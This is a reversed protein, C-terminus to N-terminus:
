QKEGKQRAEHIARAEDGVLDPEARQGIKFITTGLRNETKIQGGSELTMLISDMNQASGVDRWLAALLDVRTVPRLQKQQNEIFRLVKDMVTANDADGVSRFVRALEKACKDVMKTAQTMDVEDIVLEDTRALSLCMSAKLVHIPRTTEYSATAEDVFEKIDAKLYYEEFQKRAADAFRFEGHLQARRRLGDVLAERRSDTGNRAQPWPIKRARESEYVFNCRRIFGGGISTPPFLLAVQSPTCGGLLTPCPKYIKCLGRTRTGYEFPGDKAEWLEKLPASTESSLILDELEPSSIFCSADRSMTLTTGKMEVSGHNKGKDSIQELVYQITLKDSLVNATGSERLLQVAPNISRGKGLGTHGVLVTYMNPFLPWDGRNVWVNRKACAGVITAASWEHYVRPSESVDEIWSLFEDLWSQRLACM